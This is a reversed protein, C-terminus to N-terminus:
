VLRIGKRAHAFDSYGSVVVYETWESYKKCEEIAQLGDLYPMRIDVFAVDPKGERCMRVMDRGNAAELFINGSDGLIDGLMSKITFRILRDDDAVLIVMSM